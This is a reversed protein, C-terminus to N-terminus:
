DTDDGPEKLAAMHVVARKPIQFMGSVQPKEERSMNPALVIFDTEDRVLWGVSVIVPMPDPQYEHLWEWCSSPQRSDEWKVMVLKM